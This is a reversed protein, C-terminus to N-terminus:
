ALLFQPENDTPRRYLVKVGAFSSVVFKDQERLKASVDDIAAQGSNREWKEVAGYKVYRDPPQGKHPTSDLVIIGRSSLVEVAALYYSWMGDKDADIVILDFQEAKGADSALYDAAPGVVSTIKKGHPSRAWYKKGFNVLYPDIELSVVEGDIPLVQAMALAAVGCCSGIELVRRAGLTACLTQLLGCRQEDASWAATVHFRTKKEVYMLHWDAQRVAERMKQVVDIDPAEAPSWSPTASLSGGRSNVGPTNAGASVLHNQPFTALPFAGTSLGKVPGPIAAQPLFVHSAAIPSRGGYGSWVGANLPAM